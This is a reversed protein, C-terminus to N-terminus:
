RRGKRSIRASVDESALNTEAIWKCLGSCTTATRQEIWSSLDSALQERFAQLRRIREDLARLHKEALTLVHGCPKQGARSLRLIQRIEDLSFGIAQAKRIFQLEEVIADSYRRYGAASRSAKPVLGIEEYYRITPTSVGARKAAESIQM